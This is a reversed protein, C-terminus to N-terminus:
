RELVGISTDMESVKSELAAIRQLLPDPAAFVEVLELTELLEDAAKKQENTADDAYNIIWTSRDNLRGYSIGLIPCVAKIAKDIEDFNKM